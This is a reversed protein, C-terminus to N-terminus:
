GEGRSSVRTNYVKLGLFILARVKERRDDRSGLLHSDLGDIVAHEGPLLYDETVPERDIAAGNALIQRFAERQIDARDVGRQRALDDLQDRQAKSTVVKITCSPGECVRNGRGTRM